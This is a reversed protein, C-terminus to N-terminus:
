FRSAYDFIHAFLHVGFLGAYLLSAVAPLPSGDISVHFVQSFFVSLSFLLAHGRKNSSAFNDECSEMASSTKLKPVLLEIHYDNVFSTLCQFGLAPNGEEGGCLYNECAIM